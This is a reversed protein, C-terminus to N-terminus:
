SARKKRIQAIRAISPVFDTNGTHCNGFAEDIQQASWLRHHGGKISTVLGTTRLREMFESVRLGAFGCRAAAEEDTLMPKPGNAVAVTNRDIADVLRGLNFIVAQEFPSLTPTSM